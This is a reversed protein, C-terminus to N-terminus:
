KTHATPEHYVFLGFTFARQKAAGVDLARLWECMPNLPRSSTKCPRPCFRRVRLAAADTECQVRVQPLGAAWRGWEAATGKQRVNSM